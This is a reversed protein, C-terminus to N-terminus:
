QPSPLTLAGCQGAASPPADARGVSDGSYSLLHSFISDLEIAAGRAGVPLPAPPHPPNSYQWLTHKDKRIQLAEEAERPVRHPM